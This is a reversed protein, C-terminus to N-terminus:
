ATVYTGGGPLRCVSSRYFCQASPQLPCGSSCRVKCAESLMCPDESGDWTLCSDQASTSVRRRVDPGTATQDSSRSGFGRGLRGDGRAVGLLLPTIVTNASCPLPKCRHFSASPARSSISLHVKGYGSSSWRGRRERGGNLPTPDSTSKETLGILREEDMGSSSTGPRGQYFPPGGHNGDPFLRVLRQFIQRPRAPRPLDKM